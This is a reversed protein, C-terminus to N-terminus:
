KQLFPPFENCCADWTFVVRAKNQGRPQAGFTFKAFDNDKDIITFDSLKEACCEWTLKAGGCDYSVGGLQFLKSGEFLVRAVANEDTVCSGFFPQIQLATTRSDHM